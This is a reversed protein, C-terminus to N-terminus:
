LVRDVEFWPVITLHDHMEYHRGHFVQGCSLCTGHDSTLIVRGDLEPVLNVAAELGDRFTDIYAQTLSEISLEGEKLAHKTKATKTSQSTLDRLGNFPPHPKLYRIVGGDLGDKSDLVAQNIRNTSITIDPANEREMYGLHALRAEVSVGERLDPAHSFWEREDYDVHQLERFPLDTYVGRNGFGYELNRKAWDGTYGVGGNWSRSLNGDFYDWVLQEFIDYRAADFFILWRKKDTDFWNHILDRQDPIHAPKERESLRGNLIALGENAVSSLSEGNRITKRLIDQIM